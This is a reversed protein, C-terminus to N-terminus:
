YNTQNKSKFRKCHSKLSHKTKRGVVRKRWILYTTLKLSSRLIYKVKKENIGFQNKIADFPTRDEWAMEIIRDIQEKSFINRFNKL